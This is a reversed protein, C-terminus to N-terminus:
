LGSECHDIKLEKLLKEFMDGCLRNDHESCELSITFRKADHADIQEIIYPEIKCDKKLKDIASYIERKLAVDGSYSLSLREYKEEM